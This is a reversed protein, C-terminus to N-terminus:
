SKALPFCFNSFCSQCEVCFARTRGETLISLGRMVKGGYLGQSPKAIVKDARTEM